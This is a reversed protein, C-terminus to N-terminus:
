LLEINDIESIAHQKMEAYDLWKMSIVFDVIGSKILNNEKAYELIDM